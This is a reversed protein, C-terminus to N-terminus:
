ADCKLIQWLLPPQALETPELLASGLARTRTNRSM